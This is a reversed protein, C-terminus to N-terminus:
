LDISDESRQAFYARISDRLLAHRPSDDDALGYLGSSERRLDTAPDFQTDTLIKCRDWYKRAAKPGHWAHVLSGPVVGIDGRLRLARDQWARVARRYGPSIGPYLVDEAEGVFAKAMIWDSEGVVATDFLGGLTDIADRRAAWAFGPHHYYCIRGDANAPRGEGGYYAESWDLTTTAKVGVPSVLTTSQSASGKAPAANDKAKAGGDNGGGRRRPIGNLNSWAFSRFTNIVHGDPGLDHAESFMQVVPHHQLQHVTEDCIDPRLFEVDGDCWAVYEADDPLRSFGLNILNEKSWVEHDTRVKVYNVRPDRDAVEFARDGFACEVVTLRAGAELMRSEFDRFLRYRSLFRRPNSVVAIVDLRGGPVPSIPKLNHNFM